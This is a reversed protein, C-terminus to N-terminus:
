VDEAEGNYVPAATSGLNAIQEELALIGDEIKNLQEASLVDGDTFNQKQYAM